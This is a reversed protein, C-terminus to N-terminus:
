EGGLGGLSYFSDEFETPFTLSSKRRLFQSSSACSHKPISKTSGV